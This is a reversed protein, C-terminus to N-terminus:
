MGVFPPVDVISLHGKQLASVLGPSLKQKFQPLRRCVDVGEGCAAAAIISGVTGAGVSHTGGTGCDALESFTQLLGSRSVMEASGASAAVIRGPAAARAAWAAGATIFLISSGAWRM